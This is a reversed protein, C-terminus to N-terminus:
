VTVAFLVFDEVDDVPGKEELFVALLDREGSASADADFRACGVSELVDAVGRAFDVEFEEVSSFGFLEEMANGGFEFLDLVDGGEEGLVVEFEEAWGKSARM